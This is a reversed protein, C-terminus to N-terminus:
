PTARDRPVHLDSTGTTIAAPGASFSAPVTESIMELANPGINAPM